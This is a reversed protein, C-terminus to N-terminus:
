NSSYSGYRKEIRELYKGFTSAFVQAKQKSDYVKDNCTLKLDVTTLPEVKHSSINKPKEYPEFDFDDSFLDEETPVAQPMKAITYNVTFRKAGRPPAILDEFLPDILDSKTYNKSAYAVTEAKSAAKAVLGGLIKEPIEAEIVYNQTVLTPKYEEKKEKEKASENSGDKKVEEEPQSALEIHSLDLKESDNVYSVIKSNDEESIKGLFALVDGETIRANPGTAKIKTLADERRIGNEALLVRVSPFFTQDPNAKTGTVTPSVPKKAAAAAAPTSSELTAPTPKTAVPKPAVKKPEEKIASIDPYKLSALDDDPEAIFAIPAGVKVDNTGAPVIIKALKGDDGADVSMTAKDTEVELLEDGANFTDGEKVKWSVVGGENMTPSM